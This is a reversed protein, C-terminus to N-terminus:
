VIRKYVGKSHNIEYIEIWRSIFNYQVNDRCEMAEDINDFTDWVEGDDFRVEYITDNEM